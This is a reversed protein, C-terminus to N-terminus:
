VVKEEDNRSRHEVEPDVTLEPALRQTEPIREDESMKCRGSIGLSFRTKGLQVQEAYGKHM